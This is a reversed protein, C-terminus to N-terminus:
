YRFQTWEIGDRKGPPPMHKSNIKDIRIVRYHSGWQKIYHPSRCLVEGKVYGPQIDKSKPPRDTLSIWKLTEVEDKLSYLHQIIGVIFFVIVGLLPTAYIAYGFKGEVWGNQTLSTNSLYMATVMGAMLLLACLAISGMAKNKNYSAASYQQRHLPDTLAANLAKRNRYTTALGAAKLVKNCQLSHWGWLCVAVLEFLLTAGLAFKALKDVPFLVATNPSSNFAIIGAVCATYANSAVLSLLDMFRFIHYQRIKPM